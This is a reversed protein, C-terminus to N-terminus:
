TDQFFNIAIEFGLEEFFIYAVTFHVLLESTPMPPAQISWARQDLSLKAQVQSQTSTPSLLTM